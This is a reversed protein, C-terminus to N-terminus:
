RVLGRCHRWMNMDASAPSPKLVSLPAVMAIRSLCRQLAVDELDKALRGFGRALFLWIQRESSRRSALDRTYRELESIRETTMPHTSVTRLHDAWAKESDFEGRHPFRYVQAQFFLFAGLVPTKTIDGYGKHRFRIHGLEHGLIFAFAENRLRLSLDDVQKDKIADDPVGLADLLAPL